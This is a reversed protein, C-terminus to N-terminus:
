GTPLVVRFLAGGAPADAVSVDGGHGRVARAVSYLGVGSGPRSHPSQYGEEFIHRREEEPVGPGDDRVELEVRDGRRELEVEVRGAAYKVANDLLNQPVAALQDVVGTVPVAEAPFEARTVEGRYHLTVGRRRAEPLLDNLASLVLAHFNVPRQERREGRYEALTGELREAMREASDEIATLMSSVEDAHPRGRLMETYGLIAGLPNKLDHVLVSLLRERQEELKKRTTIDEILIVAYPDGRLEFSQLLLRVHRPEPLFPLPFAHEVEAALANADVRRAFEGAIAPVDTCRAVDRFFHRGLVERRRRRSAREEFRNFKLVYGEADLVVVGLPLRDLVTEDFIEPAPIELRGPGDIPASGSM